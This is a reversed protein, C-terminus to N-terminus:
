KAQRSQSLVLLGRLVIAEDLVFPFSLHTGISKADGGTLVLQIPGDKAAMLGQLSKDVLGACAM